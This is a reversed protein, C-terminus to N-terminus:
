LTVALVADYNAILFYYGVYLWGLFGHWMAWWFSHYANWSLMLAFAAGIGIGTSANNNKDIM